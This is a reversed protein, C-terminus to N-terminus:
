APLPILRGTGAALYTVLHCVNRISAPRKYGRMTRYRDKIWWGIAREAVNNTGDLRPANPDPWRQDLTYRAWHTSWRLLALRFRYWLSAKTGKAPPTAAQYCRLLRALQAAGDPPRLALLLQVYELDALLEDRTRQVGPPPDPISAMAQAGLDAVLKAVNQNVHRRCISHALGLEDALAKYSDQDDSILVEVDFHRALAELWHRMASASESDVLEIDLVEGRLADLAVAVTVEQGRCSVYTADASLVRVRREPQQTRIRRVLEGAAQVDRYVSSKSGKLGLAHLADVVGGYSLGLAYLLVGFGILRRSRHEDGVGVPYVRFRRGCALCRYRKVNVEHYHTDGIPRRKHQQHVAFYRGGCGAYPCVEPVVYEDPKVEPIQVRLRM